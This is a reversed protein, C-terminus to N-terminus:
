EEPLKYIVIGTATDQYSPNLNQCLAQVRAPTIEPDYGYRPNTWYLRLMWWDILLHTYGQQHLHSLVASPTRQRLVDRIPSSDFATHYTFPTRIYLPSPMGESYVRSGPPLQNLFRHPETQNILFQLGDIFAVTTGGRTGLFLLYGQIALLMVIAALCIPKFRWTITQIVLGALLCGPILCPLLFRSMLHTCCLWFAWQLFLCLILLAIPFRIAKRGIGYLVGMGLLPWFIWGFQPHLIGQSPSFLASMREWFLGDTSHATHWRQTQEITWHALGFWKTLFPFFPNGTWQGNRALWFSLVTGMGVLFSGVRCLRIKRSLDTRTGLIALVPLGIMGLASLKCFAALGALIGALLGNRIWERTESLDSKALLALSFAGSGLALLAQETYAMSATVLTWPVALYIAGISISNWKAQLNKTREM